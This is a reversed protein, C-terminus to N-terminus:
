ARRADTAGEVSEASPDLLARLRAVGRSAHSKVTGPSCRLAAAIEAETLGQYYRLVLVARQQAPLQALARLVSDREAAATTRDEVPVDHDGLAVEPRRGRRRWTNQASRALARHAYPQPEEIRPWAVFLRELVDQLLDEGDRRSGTLLVATRLLRPSCAIVFEDFDAGRGTSGSM